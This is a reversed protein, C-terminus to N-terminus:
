HQPYGPEVSKNLFTYLSFPEPRFGLFTMILVYDLGCVILICYRVTLQQYRFSYHYALCYAPYPEFGGLRAM